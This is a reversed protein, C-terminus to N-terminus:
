NPLDTRAMDKTFRGTPGGTTFLIAFRTVLAGLLVYGWLVELGVLVHAWFSQCCAHMDGFGTTMAVISFFLARVPVLWGPVPGQEGALLGSIMGPPSALAAFCYVAAFVLASVSFTLVIRGTSLGYDSLWWFAKVFWRLRPHEECWQEWNRRRINYELLQRTGPDIRIVDLAVGSFDTGKRRNSCRSVTPQWVTTSGDVYAMGFNADELHACRIHCGELHAGQFTAGELHTEELCAGHLHSGMLDAGQLCANELRTDELHAERLGLREGNV